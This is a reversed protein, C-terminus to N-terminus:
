KLAAIEADGLAQDFVYFGNLKLALPFMAKGGPAAAGFFLSKGYPYEPGAFTKQGENVGNVYISLQVKDGDLHKVVGAVRYETGPKLLNKSGVTGMPKKNAGWISFLLRGDPAVQFMNHFGPRGFLAGSKAPLAPLTFDVAVTMDNLQRPLTLLLTSDTGNFVLADGALEVKTLKVAKNGSLTKAEGRAMSCVPAVEAAFVASAAFMATFVASLLSKRM